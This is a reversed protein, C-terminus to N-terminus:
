SIRAASRPSQTRNSIAHMCAFFFFSSLQICWVERNCVACLGLMTRQIMRPKQAKSPPLMCSISAAPFCPNPQLEYPADLGFGLSSRKFNSPFGLGWLARVELFSQPRERFSAAKSPEPLRWFLRAEEGPCGQRRSREGAVATHSGYSWRLTCNPGRLSNYAWM